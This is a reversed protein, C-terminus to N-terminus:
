SRSCIVHAYHFAFRRPQWLMGRERWQLVNQSDNRTLSTHPQLTKPEWPRRCREVGLATRAVYSSYPHPRDCLDPPVVQPLDRGQCGVRAGRRHPLRRRGGQQGQAWSTAHRWARLCGTLGWAPTRVFFAGAARRRAVFFPWPRRAATSLSQGRRTNRNHKGNLAM